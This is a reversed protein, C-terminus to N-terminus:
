FLGVSSAIVVSMAILLLGMACYVARAAKTGFMKVVAAANKSEIFWKWGFIGALTCLMGTSFFLVIIFVHVAM